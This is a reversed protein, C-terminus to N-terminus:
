AHCRGSGRPGRWQRHSRHHAHGAAGPAALPAPNMPGAAPASAPTVALAIAVGAVLVFRDSIRRLSGALRAQESPESPHLLKKM